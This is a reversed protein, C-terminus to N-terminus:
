SNIGTSCKLTKAKCHNRLKWVAVILTIIAFPNKGVHLLVFADSQENLFNMLFITGNIFFILIIILM